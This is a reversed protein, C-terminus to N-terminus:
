ADLYPAIAAATTEAQLYKTAHHFRFLRSIVTTHDMAVGDFFRSLGPPIAVPDGPDAVNVWRTQGPPRAGRLASGVPQPSPTLREFVVRPLALPSGLTLFLDPQLEPHAHLAEYAVVSGLSHAIVVRPQHQAIRKAVEERAATREPADEARLYAAVERFLMPIFVRMNGEALDFKRAVWSSLARLPMTARGQSVEEPVGLERSWAVLMERALPDDLVDADRAGQSVPGSVLKDAYYAFDLDIRDSTVHLASSLQQAWLSARQARLEELAEDSVDSGFSHGVGHVAVIRVPVIGTM